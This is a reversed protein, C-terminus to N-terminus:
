EGGPLNKLLEDMAANEAPVLEALVRLATRSLPVGDPYIRSHWMLSPLARKIRKRQKNAKGKRMQKELKEASLKAILPSDWIEDFGLDSWAKEEINLREALATWHPWWNTTSAWHKSVDDRDTLMDNWRAQADLLEEAVEDEFETETGATLATWAQAEKGGFQLLYVQTGLLELREEPRKEVTLGLALADIFGALDNSDERMELVQNVCTTRAEASFEENRIARDLFQRAQKEKGQSRL